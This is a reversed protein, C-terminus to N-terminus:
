RDKIDKIGNRIAYVMGVLTYILLVLVGIYMTINWFDQQSEIELLGDTGLIGGLLIMFAAITLRGYNSTFMYIIRNKISIKKKKKEM